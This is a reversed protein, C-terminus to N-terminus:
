TISAGESAGRAVRSYLSLIGSEHRPRPPKWIRQRDALIEAIDDPPRHEGDVGVIALRREPVNIEILDGETVLAIPGGDLAEPAVHGICPGRMAGSYRGDTVIATTTSLVPDASLIATAYYMEPMGNARPGEYRIVLVDGPKIKRSVLAHVAEDEFDFVRAPGTHVRMEPPVSFTKIMAGGPAINGYLVAVGGDTGFPDSLPRIIEDKDVKVNNLYGRREAFYVPSAAIEDLNQGLTKGTVTLCDLHLMERLELMVAPVGGAYWFYEVPYRGTTKVNALVPVRRHIRDFDDISIDIGIERAIVPLHLLANTSGGVAAHLIIANEFADRTLIARPTLNIEILNLLQKGTARAYRLLRTLPAPTLASGPLALGLAEALVQGTSASGMFQCAGCTPCAGRQALKLDERPLEGREVEAGMSWMM